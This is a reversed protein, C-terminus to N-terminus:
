STCDPPNIPLNNTVVIAGIHYNDIQYNGGGLSTVKQGYGDVNWQYSDAKLTLSVKHDDSRIQVGDTLIGDVLRKQSRPGVIAFGDSLDHLRLDAQENEWGGSQWWADICRSSFVVLCEDGAGVPFTLTFGGGSPFVVPVDNLLPLDKWTRVGQMDTLRAQIAPQVSCTMKAADFSQVIGPLATWIGVQLGEFAELLVEQLSDIRELRKM